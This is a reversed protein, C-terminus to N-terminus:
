WKGLPCHENSLHTKLALFCGCEACREDSARFRDCSRCVSMRLSVKWQPNLVGAGTAAGALAGAASAAANAAMRLAGPLEPETM